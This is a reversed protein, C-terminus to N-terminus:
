ACSQILLEPTYSGIIIAYCRLCLLGILKECDFTCVCSSLHSRDRRRGVRKGPDDDVVLSVMIVRAIEDGDQRQQLLGVNRYGMDDKSSNVDVFVRIPDM